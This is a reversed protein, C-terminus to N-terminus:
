RHHPTTHTPAAAFGAMGIMAYFLCCCGCFLVLPLFVAAAAKGTGCKHTEDLGVIVAIISFIAAILPGVIPVFLWFMAGHTYASVRVTNMYGKSTGKLLMLCLHHVGGSIWPGIFGSIMFQIPYILAVLIGAASMIGAIAAAPSGKGGAATALGAIM